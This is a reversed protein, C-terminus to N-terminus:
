VIDFRRASASASLRLRLPTGFSCVFSPDSPWFSGIPLVVISLCFRLRFEAPDADDDGKIETQTMWHLAESERPLLCGCRCGATRGGLHRGRRQDRCNQFKLKAGSASCRRMEGKEAEGKRSERKGTGTEGDRSRRTPFYIGSWSRGVKERGRKVEEWREGM